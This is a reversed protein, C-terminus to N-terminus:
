YKHYSCYCHHRKVMDIWARIVPPFQQNIRVVMAFVDQPCKETTLRKLNTTCQLHSTMLTDYIRRWWHYCTYTLWCVLTYLELKNIHKQLQPFQVLIGLQFGRSFFSSMAVVCVLSKCVEDVVLTNLAPEFYVNLTPCTVEFIYYM